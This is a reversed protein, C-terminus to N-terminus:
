ASSTPNLLYTSSHIQHRIDLTRCGHKMSPIRWTPLTFFGNFDTITGRRIEPFYVHAGPLPLQTTQDTIYGSIRHAVPAPEPQVDEAASLPALLYQRAHIRKASLDTGSLVCSLAQDIHEGTYSCTVREHEVLRVAYIFDLGRQVGLESLVESLPTNQFRIDISQARLTYPSIM